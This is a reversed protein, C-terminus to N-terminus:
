GGGHFTEWVAVPPAGVASFLCIHWSVDNHCGKAVFNVSAAMQFKSFFQYHKPLNHALDILLKPNNGVWICGWTKFEAWLILPNHNPPCWHLLDRSTPFTPLTWLRWNQARLFDALFAKSLCYVFCLLNPKSTASPSLLGPARPCPHIPPWRIEEGQFQPSPPCCHQPPTLM